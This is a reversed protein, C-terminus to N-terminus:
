VEKLTLSIPLHDSYGNPNIGKKDKPRGFRIPTKYKGKILEPYNIIDVSDVKFPHSNRQNLISKSILFQDLLNVENGYVHTGINKDIFQFMLNFFFHNKASMVKNRINSSQLYNTMSKNYPNDNFDGMLLISTDKGLDEHIRKVWYSLNEAVMIRFPESELEGGSRSPWHNLILVLINNSQTTIQIQFLDRTPNRKSIRLTFNKPDITYKNKDYILATDIGRKDEGDIISFSYNRAPLITNIKETLLKLVHENEVECVGLIDPGNNNNFKLIISSLNNIKQNLVIQDWGKLEKKLQNELFSSRRPSNEIDFLNELNWWYINHYEM